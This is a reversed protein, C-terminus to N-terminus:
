SRPIYANEGTTPELVLGAAGAYVVISVKDNKDLKDVLMTLASKVLPLREHTDMSGSVDILFVLNSAPRKDIQIEKGKIGIRVLKKASNWPAQATELSVSFPDSSPNQYDYSFYNIMEEIRVADVPPKQNEELFRRVNSYSATDVDISFTSLPDTIAQFIKGESIADYSETNFTVQPASMPLGPSGYFHASGGLSKAEAMIGKKYLGGARKQAAGGSISPAVNAAIQSREREAPQNTLAVISKDKEIPAGPKADVAAEVDYTTYIDETTQTPESTLEASKLPNESQSQKVPEETESELLKCGM